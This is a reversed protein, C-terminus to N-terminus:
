ATTAAVYGGSSRAIGREGGFGACFEEVALYTVRKRVEACRVAAAVGKGHRAATFLIPSLQLSL